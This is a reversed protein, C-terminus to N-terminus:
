PRVVETGPPPEFHFLARSLGRNRRLKSFRYHMQNGAADLVEAEEISFGPPRLTLVVQRFEDVDGAPVLQLRYAGRGGRGPTALLASEFLTALPRTGTLLATLLAGDELRGEWLQQDEELYLRTTEGDVWAIKREPELYDWRMKGPRWLYIRGSEELGSGLAGSVLTQEFRGEIDRTGDLWEQLRETVAAADLEPSAAPVAAAWLVFAVAVTVGGWRVGRSDSM